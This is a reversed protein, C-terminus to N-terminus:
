DKARWHGGLSAVEPREQEDEEHRVARCLIQHDLPKISRLWGPREEVGENAERKNVIRPCSEAEIEPWVNASPGPGQQDNAHEGNEHDEEPDVRGGRRAGSQGRSGETKGTATGDPIDDISKPKGVTDDIENINAEARM